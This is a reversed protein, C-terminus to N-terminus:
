KVDGDGHSGLFRLGEKESHCHVGEDGELLSLEEPFSPLFRFSPLLHFVPFLFPLCQSFCLGTRQGDRVILFSASHKCQFASASSRQNSAMRIQMTLDALAVCCLTCWLCFLVPCVSLRFAPICPPLLDSFARASCGLDAGMGPLEGGGSDRELPDSRHGGCHEQACIWM